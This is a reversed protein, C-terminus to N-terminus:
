SFGGRHRCNPVCDVDEASGAGRIVCVLVHATLDAGIALYLTRQIPLNADAM